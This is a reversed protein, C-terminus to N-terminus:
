RQATMRELTGLAAKLAADMDAQQNSRIDELTTEVPKLPPQTAAVPEPEAVPAAPVERDATVSAVTQSALELQKLRRLGFELRDALQSLSLESLDEQPAAQEEEVTTAPVTGVPQDLELPAAEQVVPIPEAAVSAAVPEAPVVQEAVPAEQEFTQIESALPTGLDSEAFIPRRAPADPHRDGDRLMPLDALDMVKKDDPNKKKPKKLFRTLSKTNLALKPMTFRRKGEEEDQDLEVPQAANIQERLAVGMDSTGKHNIFFYIASASVLGAMVAILGRATNGLPPAAAPVIESLGTFGVINELYVHPLTAIVLAAGIGGALALAPDKFRMYNQEFEEM